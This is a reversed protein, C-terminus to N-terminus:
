SKSTLLVIPVVLAVIILAIIISISVILVLPSAKTQPTVPNIKTDEVSIEVAPHSYEEDAAEYGEKHTFDLMEAADEGFFEKEEKWHAIIYQLLHELAGFYYQDSPLLFGDEDTYSKNSLTTNESDFLSEFKELLLKNNNLAIDDFIMFEPQKTSPTTGNGINQFIKGILTLANRMGRSIEEKYAFSKPNTIFTNLYRLFFFSVILSKAKENVAKKAVSYFFKLIYVLEEPLEELKEIIMKIYKNIFDVLYNIKDEPLQRQSWGEIDESTKQAIENLLEGVIDKTWITGFVRCFLAGAKTLYSDRRFFTSLLSKDNELDKVEDDEAAEFLLHLHEMNNHLYITLLSRIIPEATTIECINIFSAILKKAKEPDCLMNKLEEHTEEINDRKPQCEYYVLSCESIWEVSM